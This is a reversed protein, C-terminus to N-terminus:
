PFMVSGHSGGGFLWAAFTTRYAKQATTRKAESATTTTSKVSLTAEGGSPVIRRVRTPCGRSPDPWDMRTTMRPQSVHNEQANVLGSKKHSARRKGMARFPHFRPSATCKATVVTTTTKVLIKHVASATRHILKAGDNSKCNKKKARYM